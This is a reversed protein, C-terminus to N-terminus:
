LRLQDINSCVELETIQEALATGEIAGALKRYLAHAKSHLREEKVESKECASPLIRLKVTDNWMGYAEAATNHVSFNAIGGDEAVKQQAQRRAALALCM